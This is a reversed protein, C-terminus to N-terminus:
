RRKRPRAATSLGARSLRVRLSDANPEAPNEEIAALARAVDEPRMRTKSAKELEAILFNRTETGDDRLRDRLTPWKSRPTEKLATLWEYWMLWTEEPRTRPGSLPADLELWGELDAPRIWGLDSKPGGHRTNHIAQCADEFFYVDAAFREALEPERRYLRRLLFVMLRRWDDASLRVTRLTALYPPIKPLAKAKRPTPM